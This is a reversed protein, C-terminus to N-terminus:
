AKVPALKPQRVDQAQLLAATALVALMVTSGALYVKMTLAFAFIDQFELVPVEEWQTRGM